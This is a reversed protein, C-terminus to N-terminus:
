IGRMITGTNKDLQKLITNLSNAESEKLKLTVRFGNSEMSQADIRELIKVSNEFADRVPKMMGEKMYDHVKKPYRDLDLIMSGSVANAAFLSGMESDALSSSPYGGEYLKKVVGEHSGILAKGDKFGLYVPFDVLGLRYHDGVKEISDHAALKKEFQKKIYPKKTNILFSLKPYLQEEKKEVTEMSMGGNGKKQVFDMYTREYTGFGNVTLIMDGSLSAVLKDLDINQEKKLGKKMREIDGDMSEQVMKYAAQPNFAIAGGMYTKKPLYSLLKNDVGGRMVREFKNEEEWDPNNTYHTFEVSSPKFALYSHFTLGDVVEDKDIPANRDFEDLLGRPLDAASIWNSVDEKRGLFEQFDENSETLSAKKELDMLRFVESEVTEKKQQHATSSLFLMRSDDWILVKKGFSMYSRGKKKKPEVEGPVGASELIKKLNKKMANRDSISAIVGMYGEKKEGKRYYFSYLDKSLDVGLSLPDALFSEFLKQMAEDQKKMEEKAMQLARYESPDSLKAKESIAQLDYAAVWGSEQPILSTHDREKACSGM